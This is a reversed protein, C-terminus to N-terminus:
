ICFYVLACVNPKQKMRFKQPVGGLVIKGMYDLGRIIFIYTHLIYPIVYISYICLIIYLSYVHCTNCVYELNKVLINGIFLKCWWNGINLKYLQKRYLYTKLFLSGNVTCTILFILINLVYEREHIGLLIHCIWWYSSHVRQQMKGILQTLFGYQYIEFEFSCQLYYDVYCFM